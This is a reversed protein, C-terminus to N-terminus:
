DGNINQRNTREMDRCFESAQAGKEVKVERNAQTVEGDKRV